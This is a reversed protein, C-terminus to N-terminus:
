AFDLLFIFRLLKPVPRVSDQGPRILRSASIEADSSLVTMVKSEYSRKSHIVVKQFAQSFAQLRLVLFSCKQFDQGGRVFGTRAPCAFGSVSGFDPFLRQLPSTPWLPMYEPNEQRPSTIRAQLLIRPNKSPPKLSSVFFVLSLLSKQASRRQKEPKIM